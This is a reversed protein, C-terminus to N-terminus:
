PELSAIFKAVDGYLSAMMSEQDGFLILSHQRRQRKLYYPCTMFRDLALLNRPTLISDAIDFQWHELGVLTVWTDFGTDTLRLGGNPRANWWWTIFILDPDLELGLEKILKQTLLFRDVQPIFKGDKSYCCWLSVM